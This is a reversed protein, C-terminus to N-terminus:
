RHRRVLKKDALQVLVIIAAAFAIIPIYEKVWLLSSKLLPLDIFFFAIAIALFGLSIGAIFNITDKQKDKQEEILLVKAMVEDVVENPEHQIPNDKEKELMDFLLTYAERDQDTLPKQEGDAQEQLLKKLQEDTLNM